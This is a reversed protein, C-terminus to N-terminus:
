PRISGNASLEIGSLTMAPASLSISCPLKYLMVWAGGGARGAWVGRWGADARRRGDCASASVPIARLPCPRTVSTMPGLFSSAAADSSLDAPTQMADRQPYNRSPLSRCRWRAHLRLPRDDVVGVVAALVLLGAGFEFTSV